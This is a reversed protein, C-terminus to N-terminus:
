VHLRRQDPAFRQRHLNEAARTIYQAVHKVEGATIRPRAAELSCSVIDAGLADELRWLWTVLNSLPEAPIAGHLFELDGARWGLPIRTKSKDAGYLIDSDIDSESESKERGRAYSRNQEGMRKSSKSIENANKSNEAIAQSKKAGNEVNIRRREARSELELEARKNTIGAPTVVLKGCGVLIGRAGRWKRQSVHLQHAMWGADDPVPGDRDYILCLVDHYIGRVYPDLNRTGDLWDRCYCKFWQASRTM